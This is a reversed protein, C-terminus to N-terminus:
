FAKCTYCDFMFCKLFMWVVECGKGTLDPVLWFTNGVSFDSSVLGFFLLPQSLVCSQKQQPVNCLVVPWSGSSCASACAAPTRGHCLLAKAWPECIFAALPCCLHTFFGTAKGEVHLSEVHAMLEKGWLCFLHLKFPFSGLTQSCPVFVLQAITGLDVLLCLGQWCCHDWQKRLNTICIRFLLRSQRVCILEESIAVVETQTLPSSWWCFSLETAAKQGQQWVCLMSAPDLGDYGKDFGRDSCAAM